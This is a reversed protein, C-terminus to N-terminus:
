GDDRELKARFSVYGVLAPPLVILALTIFHAVLPEFSM